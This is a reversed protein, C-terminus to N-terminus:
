RDHQRRPRVAPDASESGALHRQRRPQRVRHFVHQFFFGAENFIPPENANVWTDIGPTGEITSTQIWNVNDGLPPVARIGYKGPPLFKVLANGTNDTFIGGGQVDVTPSGEADLVFTGDPNKLYTTGLNNGFADVTVQGAQEFVLIKFGALGAEAPVDPASNLSNNDAFVLVEIQATPLPQAQLIVRVFTQGAAINAGGNSYTNDPLVSIVYRKAPDVVNPDSLPAINASTGKAVVPAYSRHISVGLSNTDPVGPTVPHTTDEELLWRYGVAVPNGDGDVVNLTFGLATSHLLALIAVSLLAAFVGNRRIGPIGATVKM